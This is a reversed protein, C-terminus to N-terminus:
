MLSSLSQLSIQVRQIGFWSSRGWIHSHFLCTNSAFTLYLRVAQICTKCFCYHTKSEVVGHIFRFLFHNWHRKLAKEKIVQILWTQGSMRTLIMHFVGHTYFKIPWGQFIFNTRSWCVASLAILGFVEFSSTGLFTKKLYSRLNQQLAFKESYGRFWKM